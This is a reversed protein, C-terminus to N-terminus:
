GWYPDVAEVVVGLQQRQTTDPSFWDNFPSPGAFNLQAFM